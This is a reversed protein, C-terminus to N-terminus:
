VAARRPPTRPLRRVPWPGPSSSHHPLCLPAQTAGRSARGLTGFTGPVGRFVSFPRLRPETKLRSRQVTGAGLPCTALWAHAEYANIVGTM